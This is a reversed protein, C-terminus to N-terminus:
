AEEDDPEIWFDGYEPEPEAEDDLLFVEWIEDPDAPKAPAPRDPAPHEHHEHRMDAERSFFARPAGIEWAGVVAPTM